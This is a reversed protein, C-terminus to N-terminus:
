RAFRAPDPDESEYGSVDIARRAEYTSYACGQLHIAATRDNTPCDCAWPNFDRLRLKEGVDLKSRVGRRPLTLNLGLQNEENRERERTLLAQKWLPLM